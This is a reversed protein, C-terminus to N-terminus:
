LTIVSTAEHIERLAQDSYARSLIVGASDRVHATTQPEGALSANGAQADSGSALRATGDLTTRFAPDIECSAGSHICTSDTEECRHYDPSGPVSEECSQTMADCYVCESSQAEADATTGVTGVALFGLVVLWFISKRM